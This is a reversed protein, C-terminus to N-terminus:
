NRKFLEKCKRGYDTMPIGQQAFTHALGALITRGNYVFRLNAFRAKNKSPQGDNKILKFEHIDTVYQNFLEEFISGCFIVYDRPSAAIVDLLREIHPQLIESTFGRSSFKESGYPILEMQLKSDVVRELNIYIDEKAKVEVFDIVGFPKLFRIQKHDFPSKHTRASSKGYKYLGFNMNYAFYDELSKFILPNVHVNAYNNKQKPNLHILVIKADLNGTFYLPYENHNFHQGTKASLEIAKTMKGTAIFEEIDQQIIEKFKEFM